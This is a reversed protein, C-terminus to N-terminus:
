HIPGDTLTMASQIDSYGESQALREIAKLALSADLAVVLAVFLVVCGLESPHPLSERTPSKTVRTM